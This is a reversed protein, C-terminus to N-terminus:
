LATGDALGPRSSATERPDLNPATQHGTTADTSIRAQPLASADQTVTDALENGDIVCHYLMWQLCIRRNPGLLIALASWVSTGLATKHAM